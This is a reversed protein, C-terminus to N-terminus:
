RARRFVTVLLPIVQGGFCNTDTPRMVLATNRAEDYYSSLALRDALVSVSRSLTAPRSSHPPALGAYMKAM